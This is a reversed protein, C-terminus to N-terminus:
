REPSTSSESENRKNFEALLQRQVNSGSNEKQMQCAGVTIARKMGYNDNVVAGIDSSHNNIPVHHNNTNRAAHNPQVQDSNLLLIDSELSRPRSPRQLSSNVSHSRGIRYAVSDELGSQLRVVSSRTELM